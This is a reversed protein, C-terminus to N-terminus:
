WFRLCWRWSVVWSFNAPGIPWQHKKSFIGEKLGDLESAVPGEPRQAKAGTSGFPGGNGHRTPTENELKKESTKEIQPPNQFTKALWFPTLILKPSDKKRNKKLHTQCRNQITKQLSSVKFTIKGRSFWM